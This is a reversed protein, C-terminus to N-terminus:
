PENGSTARISPSDQWSCVGRRRRVDDEGRGSVKAGVDRGRGSVKAGVDRGRGIASDGLDAGLVFIAVVGDLAGVIEAGDVADAHVLEEVVDAEDVSRAYGLAIQVRQVVTLGAFRVDLDGFPRRTV